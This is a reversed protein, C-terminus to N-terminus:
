VVLFLDTTPHYAAWAFWYIELAELKELRKGKNEGSIAEGDFNWRSGTEIDLIEGDRFEFSLVKGGMERSFVRVLDTKLDSLVLINKGGLKDNIFRVNTVEEKPYAKFKDNIEIGFVVAKPHLRTDNNPIPFHIEENTTYGSVKVIDFEYNKSFGTDKSLVLTDPHMEKWQGWTVHEMEIPILKEGVLEGEIANGGIQTWSTNTGRDYLVLCSNLLTGLVGFETERGKIARKYAIGTDCLGCRTIAIPEDEFRDNVIHHYNIIKLPYAKAIGGYVLGLVEDDDSWVMDGEEATLFKPSDLSPYCDKEPCGRVYTGSANIDNANQNPRNVYSALIFVGILLALILTLHSLRIYRQKM